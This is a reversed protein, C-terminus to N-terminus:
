KSKGLSEREQARGLSQVASRIQDRRDGAYLELDVSDRPLRRRVNWESVSKIANIISADAYGKGLKSIGLEKAVAKAFRLYPGKGSALGESLTSNKFKLESYVVPLWDGVLWEFPSFAQFSHRYSPGVDHYDDEYKESVERNISDELTSVAARSVENWLEDDKMLRRLRKVCTRVDDLEKRQAVEHKDHQHKIAERYFGICENLGRALAADDMVPPYHLKGVARLIRNMGSLTIQKDSEGM